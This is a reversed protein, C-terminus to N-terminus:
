RQRDIGAHEALRDLAYDIRHSKVSQRLDRVVLIPGALPGYKEMTRERAQDQGDRIIQIDGLFENGRASYVLQAVDGDVVYNRVLHRAGPALRGAAIPNLVIARIGLEAAAYACAGGGLSHGVCETTFGRAQYRQVISRVYSKAMFFHQPSESKVLAQWIDATLFDRRLDQTGAVAVVIVREAENIYANSEFGAADAAANESDNFADRARELIRWDARTDFASQGSLRTESYTRNALELKVLDHSAQTREALATLMQGTDETTM